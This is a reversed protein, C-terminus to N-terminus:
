HHVKHPHSIHHAFLFCLYILGAHLGKSGQFEKKIFSHSHILSPSNLLHNLSLISTIPYRSRIFSPHNPPAAQHHTIPHYPAHTLKSIQTRNTSNSTTEDRERRRNEIRCRKRQVAPKQPSPLEVVSRGYFCVSSM